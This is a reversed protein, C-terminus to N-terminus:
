QELCGWGDGRGNFKTAHMELLEQYGTIEDYSAEMFVFVVIEFPYENDEQNDSLLIKQRNLLLTEGFKLAEEANSFIVTFEIERPQSLDDGSEQMEWLADGTPDDPFTNPDRNM